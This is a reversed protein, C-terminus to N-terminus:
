SNVIIEACIGLLQILFYEQDPLRKRGPFM